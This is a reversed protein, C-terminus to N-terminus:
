GATTGATWTTGSGSSSNIYFRNNVTTGDSRLYLSGQAASLTPAGSGFFIGFNTTSGFFFGAGTIGGAPTGTAAYVGASGNNTMGPITLNGAVIVAQTEGKITLATTPTAQVGSVNSKVGTQFVMDGSTGANTSLSGVFTWPVGNINGTAASQVRLTQAVPSAADAAGLQFHGSNNGFVKTPGAGFQFSPNGNTLTLTDQIATAGLASTGTVALANSGPTAGGVSLVGLNLQGLASAATTGVQIIGASVRSINVDYTGSGWGVVQTTPLLSIKTAM